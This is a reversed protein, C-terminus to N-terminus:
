QCEFKQDCVVIYIHQLSILEINKKIEICNRKYHLAGYHKLYWVLLFIFLVRFVRDMM